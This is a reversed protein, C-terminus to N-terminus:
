CWHIHEDPAVVGSCFVFLMLPIVIFAMVVSKLRDFVQISLLCQGRLVDRRIAFAAYFQALSYILGQTFVFM